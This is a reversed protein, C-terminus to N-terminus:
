KRFVKKPPAFEMRKKLSYNQMNNLLQPNNRLEIVKRILDDQGNEFPIIFGSKGDEIFEQAYMWDTAIVPIGSIYADVVSGPLGETYFHTPLLMVDYKSLTTYIEEPKLPGHYKIFDFKKLNSYFYDKTEEAMPGYFTINIDDTLNNKVLYDALNFIWDLGKQILVRAMFVLELKKNNKSEPNFDFERFNPFKSVNSLHYEQVLQNKLLDTEPYVGSIHRLMYQHIPLNKIFNGIWGGVVFYEIKFGYIKSLIFIIPFLYKFNGHAPLYVVRKCHTLSRLMKFVNKKSQKFTQTDFCHVVEKGYLKQLLDFVSRTKITQGNLDNNAYGYNGLVLINEM